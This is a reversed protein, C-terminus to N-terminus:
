VVDIINPFNSIIGDGASSVLCAGLLSINETEIRKVPLMRLIFEDIKTKLKSVYIGDAICHSKDVSFDYLKKTAQKYIEEIYFKQDACLSGGTALHGHLRRFMETSGETMNGSGHSLLLRVSDQAVQLVSMSFSHKFYQIVLLNGSYNNAENLLAYAVAIVLGCPLVRVSTFGASVAATELLAKTRRSAVFETAIVLCGLSNKLYRRRICQKVQAFFLVLWEGISSPHKGNTRKGKDQSDVSENNRHIKDYLNIYAPSLLDCETGVTVQSNKVSIELLDKMLVDAQRTEANFIGVEFGAEAFTLGVNIPNSESIEM